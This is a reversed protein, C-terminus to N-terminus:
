SLVLRAETEFDEILREYVVEHLSVPLVTQWHQMVRRYEQFRSAIHQADNAWRISRFDTMWCSVAIDRLDRRCHIFTARPFLAALFGVYVYNDPMKDAIREVAKGNVGAASITSREELSPDIDRLERLHREALTRIAKDNLEPVCAVPPESRGLISPMAE